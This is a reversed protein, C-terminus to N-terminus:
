QKLKVLNYLIDKSMQEAHKEKTVDLGYRLAFNYWIIDSTVLDVLLASAYADNDAPSHAGIVPDKDANVSAIIGGVLGFAYLGAAMPNGYHQECKVILLADLEPELTKFLKIDESFKRSLIENKRDKWLGELEMIRLLKYCDQAVREINSDWQGSYSNKSILKVQYSSNKQIATVLADELAIGKSERNSQYGIPSLFGINKVNSIKEKFDPCTKVFHTSACGLLNITILLILCFRLLEAKKM